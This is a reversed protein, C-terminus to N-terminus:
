KSLFKMIADYLDPDGNFFLYVLFVVIIIAGTEDM